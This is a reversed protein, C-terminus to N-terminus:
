EEDLPENGDEDSDDNMNLDVSHQSDADDNHELDRCKAAALERRVEATIDYHTHKKLLEMLAERQESSIDSKYRQVFTLLAQHWLVPMERKDMHFSVFHHVVADIVRYPLAYKKDLLIRIFISNAGTYKMEALKLLAAASHLMPISNKALVSGVVIAERLSCDASECLPLLVGKFFAAPKFLAKRLAMYLHFNLRKFEGIDDRIRPLLVLTFFRQAMKANLNSAFIRTAQYVAAASWSDPETIFLIHEWNALSPLIKFAKPLKGSRYKHLVERIQTYMRVVREDLQSAIQERRQDAASTGGTGGGMESMVTEVETRKETLKEMIIDAITRRTSTNTSRFLDFARQEEESLAIDAAAAASDGLRGGGGGMIAAEEEDDCEDSESDSDAGEKNTGGPSAAAAAAAAGTSTKACRILQQQKFNSQFKKFPAASADEGEDDSNLKQMRSSNSGSPLQLRVTKKPKTTAINNNNPDNANVEDDSGFEDRLESQQKRAQALIKSSMRADVFEADAGDADEILKISADDAALRDSNSKNTKNKNETSKVKALRLSEIDDALPMKAIPDIVNRQSGLRKGQKVKGM